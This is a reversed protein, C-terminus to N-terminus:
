KKLFSQLKDRTYEKIGRSFNCGVIRCYKQCKKINKREERAGKLINKLNERQVNGIIKGKFCLAVDGNPYIVLNRQGAFCRYKLVTDPNLYYQEIAYLNALSNKIGRHHSKKETLWQFFKVVDQQDPWLQSILNNVQRNKSERSEIEEDLVQLIISTNSFKQLYQILSPITKINESTILIGVELPIQMQNILQIAKKAKIYALKHGRLSNHVNEDLSYFSLKILSIGASKLENLIKENILLGNSNLAIKYFHKRLEKTLSLVIEKKLLAEGGNIEVFTDPRLVQAINQAVKKWQSQSLEKHRTIKWISCTKCQFNCRFTTVLSLFEPSVTYYGTQYSIEKLIKDVVKVM